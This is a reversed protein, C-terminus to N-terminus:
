ELETGLMEMLESFSERHEKHSALQAMYIREYMDTAVILDARTGANSFAEDPPMAEILASLRVVPMLYPRSWERVAQDRHRLTDTLNAHAVIATRLQDNTILAMDGSAVLQEYTDSHGIIPPLNFATDYFERMREIDAGQPYNVIMTKFDDLKENVSELFEIGLAVDRSLAEYDAHLREIIVDERLKDARAANWNSVQIGIFVGVVVIVFDLAVATWNQAKVHEIMRRLLM